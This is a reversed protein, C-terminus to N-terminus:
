IICHDNCIKYYEIIYNWIYPFNFTILKCINYEHEPNCLQIIYNQINTEHENIWDNIIYCDHCSVSNDM